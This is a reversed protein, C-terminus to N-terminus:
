LQFLNKFGSNLIFDVNLDGRLARYAQLVELPLQYDLKTFCNQERIFVLRQVPTAVSRFCGYKPSLPLLILLNLAAQVICCGGAESFPKKLHQLVRVCSMLHLLLQDAEPVTHQFRRM